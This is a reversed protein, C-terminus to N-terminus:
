RNHYDSHSGCSPMGAIAPAMVRKGFQTKRTALIATAHVHAMTETAVATLIASTHHYIDRLFGLFLLLLYFCPSFLCNLLHKAAHPLYWGRKFGFCVFILIACRCREREITKCVRKSHSELCSGSAASSATTFRFKFSNAGPNFLAANTLSRRSVTYLLRVSKSLIISFAAGSQGSSLIETTSRLTRRIPSASSKNESRLSTGALTAILSAISSALVNPPSFLPFNTFPARPLTYLSSPSGPFSSSDVLFFSLTVSTRRPPAIM